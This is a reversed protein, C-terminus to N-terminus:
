ENDESISLTGNSDYPVTVYKNIKDIYYLAVTKGNAFQRVSKRKMLLVAPLDKPSPKKEEGLLLPLEELQLEQFEKLTKV